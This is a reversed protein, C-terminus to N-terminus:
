IADILYQINLKHIELFVLDARPLSVIEHLTDNCVM